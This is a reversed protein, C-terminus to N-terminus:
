EPARFGRAELRTACREAARRYGASRAPNTSSLGRVLAMLLRWPEGGVEVREGYVRAIRHARRGAEAERGARADLELLIRETALSELLHGSERAFALASEADRRAAVLDGRRLAVEGAIRHAVIRARHGTTRSAHRRARDALVSALRLDGRALAM